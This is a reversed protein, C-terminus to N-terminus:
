VRVHAGGIGIHGEKRRTIEQSCGVYRYRGQVMSRFQFYVHRDSPHWMTNVLFKLRQNDRRPSMQTHKVPM